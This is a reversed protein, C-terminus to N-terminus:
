PWAEWVDAQVGSENARTIGVRFIKGLRYLESFRPRATLISVNLIKAAEDPTLTTTRLLTLIKDRVTPAREKVSEAAAKSTATRRHGPQKPYRAAFDFLSPADVM